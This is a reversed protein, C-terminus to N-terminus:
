VPKITVVFYSFRACSIGLTLFFAKELFFSLSLLVVVVTVVSGVLCIFLPLVVGSHMHATFSFGLGLGFFVTNNLSLKLKLVKDM